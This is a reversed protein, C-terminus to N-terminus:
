VTAEEIPLLALRLIRDANGANIRDVHLSGNSRVAHDNDFGSEYWLKFGDLFAHISLEHAATPTETERLEIKHDMNMIDWVHDALDKNCMADAVTAAAPVFFTYRSGNQSMTAKVIIDVIDELSIQIESSTKIVFQDESDTLNEDKMVVSSMEEKMSVPILGEAIYFSDPVHCSVDGWNFCGCTLRLTEEGKATQLFKDVARRVAKEAEAANNLATYFLMAFPEHEHRDIGCDDVILTYIM